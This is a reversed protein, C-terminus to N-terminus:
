MHGSHWSVRAATSHQWAPLVQGAQAAAVEEEGEGGGVAGCSAPAGKRHWHARPDRARPHARPPRKKAVFLDLTSWLCAWAVWVGFLFAHHRTRSPRLRAASASRTHQCMRARPAGDLLGKCPVQGPGALPWGLGSVGRLLAGPPAHAFPVPYAHAASAAACSHWCVRARPRITELARRAGRGPGALPWGLGGLRPLLAGRPARAFPVPHARAASAAAPSHVCVRARPALSRTHAHLTHKNPQGITLQAM